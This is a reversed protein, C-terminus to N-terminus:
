VFLCWNVGFKDVLGIVCPSWDFSTGFPVDIQAGDKLIQNGLIDDGWDDSISPSVYLEYFTYGTNNVVTVQPLNQAFAFGTLLAFILGLFIYKKM